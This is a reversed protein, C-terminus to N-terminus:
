DLLLLYPRGPDSAARLSLKLVEGVVWRRPTPQLLDEYGLMAEPGTWDPRVAFVSYRKPGFWQGLKLALQSKGSGSLGTLIVFPRTLLSALLRVVLQQHPEGYDLGATKTAEAFSEAVQPLSSP